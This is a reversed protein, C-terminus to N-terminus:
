GTMEIATSIIQSINCLLARHNNLALLGDAPDQLGHPRSIEVHESVDSYAATSGPGPRLRDETVLGDEGGERGEEGGEEGGGAGALRVDVDDELIDVDLCDLYARAGSCVPFGPTSFDFFHIERLIEFIKPTFVSITPAQSLISPDMM